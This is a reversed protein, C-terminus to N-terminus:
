VVVHLRRELWETHLPLLDLRTLHRHTPFHKGPQRQLMRGTDPLNRLWEHLRAPLILDRVHLLHLLEINDSCLKVARVYDQRECVRMGRYYLVGPVSNRPHGLTLRGTGNLM